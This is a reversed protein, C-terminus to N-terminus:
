LYEFYYGSKTSKLKDCSSKITRNNIIEFWTKPRKVTLSYARYGSGKGVYICENDLWHEYVYHKKIEKQYHNEV